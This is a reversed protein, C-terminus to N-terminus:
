DTGKPLKREETISLQIPQRGSDIIMEKTIPLPRFVRVGAEVSVTAGYFPRPEIRITRADDAVASSALLGFAMAVASLGTLIRFM